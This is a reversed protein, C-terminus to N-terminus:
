YTFQKQKERERERERQLECIRLCIIRAYKVCLARRKASYGPGVQQAMKCLDAQLEIMPRLPDPDSGSRTKASLHAGSKNSLPSSITCSTRVQVFRIRRMRPKALMRM